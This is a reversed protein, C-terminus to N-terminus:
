APRTDSKEASSMMERPSRLDCRAFEPYGFRSLGVEGVDPREDRCIIPSRRVAKDVLDYATELREAQLGFQARATIMEKGPQADM